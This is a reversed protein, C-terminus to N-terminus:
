SGGRKLWNRKHVEYASPLPSDGIPLLYIDASIIGLKDQYMQVFVDLEKELSQIEAVRLLTPKYRYLNEIRDCLRESYGRGAYEPARYNKDM